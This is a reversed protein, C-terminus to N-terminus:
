SYWVDYQWINLQTWQRCRHTLELMKQNKAFKENSRSVNLIGVADVNTWRWNICHLATSSILDVKFDIAYFLMLKQIGNRKSTLRCLYACNYVHKFTDKISNYIESKLCYRINEILKFCKILLHCLHNHDICLYKM